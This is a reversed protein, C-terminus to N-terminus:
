LAVKVIVNARSAFAKGFGLFDMVAHAESEDGFRSLTQLLERPSQSDRITWDPEEERSEKNLKTKQFVNEKSSFDNDRSSYRFKYIPMEKGPMYIDLVRDIRQAWGKKPNGEADFVVKGSKDKRKTPFWRVLKQAKATYRGLQFDEVEDEKQHGGEPKFKKKPAPPEPKEPEAAMRAASSKAKFENYVMLELEEDGKAQGYQNLFEDVLTEPLDILPMKGDMVQVWGPVAKSPRTILGSPKEEPAGLEQAKARALNAKETEGAEEWHKVSDQLAEILARGETYAGVSLAEKAGDSLLDEVDPAFALAVFAGKKTPFIRGPLGHVM